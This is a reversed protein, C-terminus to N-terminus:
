KQIHLRLLSQVGWVESRDLIQPCCHCLHHPPHFLAHSVYLASHMLYLMYNSSLSQGTNGCAIIAGLSKFPFSPVLFVFPFTLCFKPGVHVVSFVFGGSFAESWVRYGM